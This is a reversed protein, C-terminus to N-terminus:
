ALLEMGSVAAVADRDFTLTQACGAKAASHVILHDALEDKLAVSGVLMSVFYEDEVVLGATEVIL